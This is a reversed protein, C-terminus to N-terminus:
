LYQFISRGDTKVGPKAALQRNARGPAEGVPAFGCGISTRQIALQRVAPQAPCLNSIYEVVPSPRRGVGAGWTSFIWNSAYEDLNAASMRIKWREDVGSGDSTGARGSGEGPGDGTGTREAPGLGPAAMSRSDFDPAKAAAVVAAV